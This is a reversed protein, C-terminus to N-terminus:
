LTIIDAISCMKVATIRHLSIKVWQPSSNLVMCEVCRGTLISLNLLNPRCDVILNLRSDVTSISFGARTDVGCGVECLGGM